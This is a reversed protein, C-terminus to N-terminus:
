KSYDVTSLENKITTLKELLAMDEKIKNKIDDIGTIEALQFTYQKQVKLVCHHKRTMKGKYYGDPRIDIIQGDRWDRLFSPENPTRKTGVKLLLEMPKYKNNPM